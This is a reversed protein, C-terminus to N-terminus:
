AFFSTRLNSSTEIKNSIEREREREREREGGRGEKEGGEREGMRGEKRLSFVIKDGKFALITESYL